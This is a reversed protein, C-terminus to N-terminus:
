ACLWAKSHADSVVFGAVDFRDSIARTLLAFLEEQSEIDAEMSFDLDLSGRNGVKHILELANGGKLAMLELLTDDSAIAILATQRISIFDMGREGVDTRCLVAVQSFEDSPPLIEVGM